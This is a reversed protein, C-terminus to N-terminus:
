RRQLSGASGPTLQFSLVGVRGENESARGAVSVAKVFYYTNADDGLVNVDQYEILDGSQASAPPRVSALPDGAPTFYPSTSRWVDYRVVQM